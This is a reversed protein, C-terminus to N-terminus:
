TRNEATYYTSVDSNWVILGYQSLVDEVARRRAADRDHRSAANAELRIQRIQVEQTFRERDPLTTRREEYTERATRGNLVPRPRRNNLDDLAHDIRQSLSRRSRRQAREYARVDRFSREKKGNYQPYGPPSTIVIVGHSELLEM